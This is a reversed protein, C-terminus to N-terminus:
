GWDAVRNEKLDSQNYKDACTVSVYGGTPLHEYYRHPRPRKVTKPATPKARLLEVLESLGQTTGNWKSIPDVGRDRALSNFENILSQM